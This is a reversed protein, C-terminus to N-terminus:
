KATCIFNAPIMLAKWAPYASSHVYNSAATRRILLKLASSIKNQAETFLFAKQLTWQATQRKLFHNIEMLREFVQAENVDQLLIRNLSLLLDTITHTPKSVPAESQHSHFHSAPASTNNKKRRGRAGSSGGERSGTSKAISEQPNPSAMGCKVAVFFSCCARSRTMLSSVSM